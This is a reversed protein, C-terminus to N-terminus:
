LADTFEQTPVLTNGTDVVRPSNADLTGSVGLGTLLAAFDVNFVATQNAVPAGSLTLPVRYHWTSSATASAGWWAPSAQLAARAPQLALGFVAGAFALLLLLCRLVTTVRM